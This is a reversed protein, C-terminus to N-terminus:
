TAIILSLSTMCENDCSSLERDDIRTVLGLTVLEVTARLLFESSIPKKAIALFSVELQLLSQESKGREM